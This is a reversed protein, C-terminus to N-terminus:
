EPTDWHETITPEQEADLGDESDDLVWDPDHEYLFDPDIPGYM